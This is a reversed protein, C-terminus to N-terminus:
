GSVVKAIMYTDVAVPVMLPASQMMMWRVSPDEEEWSKPFRPVAYLGSLDQIVGYLRDMRANTNGLMIYKAPVYPKEVGDAPDIYWDDYSYVDCGIDRLFGWYTVGNPQNDPTIQGRDIKVQSIAGDTGNVQVNGMLAAIAESGCLLINPAMGGNKILMTRWARLEDLPFGGSEDWYKSMTLVRHNTDVPFTVKENADRFAIEGNFIAQSAQLEERRTIMEDLEILDERIMAAERAQPGGSAYITQGMGRDFLVDKPEIGRKEKIYPPAYTYTTYGIRESRHGEDTPGVYAAVRRKGKKIDIDVAKTDFTRVNKFFTDRLFTRVLPLQPMAELMTRTDFLSIAM